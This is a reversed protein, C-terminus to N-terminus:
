EIKNKLERVEEPSFEDTVRLWIAGDSGIAQNGKLIVWTEPQNPNVYPGVSVKELRCTNKLPGEIGEQSAKADLFELYLRFIDETKRSCVLRRSICAELMRLRLGDAIMNVISDTKSTGDSVMREVLCHIADPSLRLGIMDKKM